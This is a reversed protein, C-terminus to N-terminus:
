IYKNCTLPRILLTVSYQVCPWLNVSKVKFQLMNRLHIHGVSMLRLIVCLDRNNTPPFIVQTIDGYPIFTFSCKGDLSGKRCLMYRLMSGPYLYEVIFFIALGIVLILATM